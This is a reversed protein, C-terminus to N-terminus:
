TAGKGIIDVMFTAGLYDVGAATTYTGPAASQVRAYSYVDTEYGEIAEKVSAPGSGAVYQLLLDRASRASVEGVLVGIPLTLGDAGCQYARDFTITEPWFVIAAPPSVDQETYPFVRLGQIRGLAAGLEDMVDSLNM